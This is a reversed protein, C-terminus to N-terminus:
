QARRNARVYGLLVSLTVIKKDLWAVYAAGYHEIPDVYFRGCESVCPDTIATGHFLFGADPHEDFKCTCRGWKANCFYCTKRM